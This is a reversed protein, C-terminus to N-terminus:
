GEGAGEGSEVRSGTNPPGSDVGTGPTEPGTGADDSVGDRPAPDDAVASQRPDAYASRPMDTSLRLKSWILVGALAGTFALSAALRGHRHRQTAM